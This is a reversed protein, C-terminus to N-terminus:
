YTVLRECRFGWSDLTRRWMLWDGAAPDQLMADTVPVFDDAPQAHAGGVAAAAILAAAAAVRLCRSSFTQRM